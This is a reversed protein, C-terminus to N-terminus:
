TRRKQKRDSSSENDRENENAQPKQFRLVKEATYDARYRCKDLSCTLLLKRSTPLAERGGESHDLGFLIPTRCRQCRVGLYWRTDNKRPRTLNM